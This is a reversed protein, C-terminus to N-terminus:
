YAVCSEVLVFFVWREPVRCLQRLWACGFFLQAHGTLCGFMVNCGCVCCEACVASQVFVFTLKRLNVGSYTCCICVSFRMARLVKVFLHWWGVRVRLVFMCVGLLVCAFVSFMCLRYTKLM